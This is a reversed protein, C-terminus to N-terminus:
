SGCVGNCTTAPMRSKMSRFFILSTRSIVPLTSVFFYNEQLWNAPWLTWLLSIFDEKRKPPRISAQKKDADANAPSDEPFCGFM